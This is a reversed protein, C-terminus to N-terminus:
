PNSKYHVLRYVKVFPVDWVGSIEARGFGAIEWLSNGLPQCNSEECIVILQDTVTTRKPDVAENEITVPKRGWIEFFYRYVYDSNLGAILAFNFPKGGTKELTVEAIHRMQGMQNNPPYLFPRGYWNLVLFVVLVLISVWRTIRGRFLRDLIYAVMFFPAAFVIGLYYDYVQRKYLGFM